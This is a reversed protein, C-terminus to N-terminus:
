HVTRGTITTTKTDGAMVDKQRVVLKADAISGCTGCSARYTTGKYAVEATGNEWNTGSFIFFEPSYKNNIFKLNNNASEFSVRLGDPDIAEVVGPTLAPLEIKNENVGFQNVVKGQDIYLKDQSLGRSLILTQDVFFQLKRIDQSNARLRNYLERTFPIMSDQEVPAAMEVKPQPPATFKIPADAKRSSVCSVLSITILLSFTSIQKMKKLLNEKTM